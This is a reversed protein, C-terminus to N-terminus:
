ESMDDSMSDDADSDQLLRYTANEHEECHQRWEEDFVLHRYCLRVLAPHVTRAAVYPWVQAYRARWDLEFLAAQCTADVIRAYWCQERPRGGVVIDTGPVQHYWDRCGDHLARFSVTCARGCVEDVYVYGVEDGVRRDVVVSLRQMVPRGLIRSWRLRMPPMLTDIDLYAGVTRLLPFTMAEDQQQRTATAALAMADLPSRHPSFAAAPDLCSWAECPKVPQGCVECRNGSM